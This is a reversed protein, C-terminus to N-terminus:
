LLLCAPTPHWAGSIMVGVEVAFGVEEAGAADGAGVLLEVLVALGELIFADGGELNAAVVVVVAGLGAEADGGHVAAQVVAFDGEVV